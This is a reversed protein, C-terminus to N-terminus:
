SLSAQILLSLADSPVRGVLCVRLTAKNNAFHSRGLVLFHLSFQLSALSFEEWFGWSRAGRRLVLISVRASSPESPRSGAGVFGGPISSGRASEAAANGERAQGSASGAGLWTREGRRGEPVYTGSSPNTAVDNRSFRRPNMKYPVAAPALFRLAGAVAVSFATLIGRLRCTQTGM